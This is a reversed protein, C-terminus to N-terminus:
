RVANSKWLRPLLLLGAVIPHRRQWATLAIKHGSHREIKWSLYDMGGEFTFASKALRAASLLKGAVIRFKWSSRRRPWTSALCCAPDAVDLYFARHAEVLASPRNSREPRLETAYTAALCRELSILADEGPRSLRACEAFTTICAEVLSGLVAERADANAARLIRVPQGFRAWFYPNQSIMRRRFENLTMVAYKCRLQRESEGIAAFHVNPPLIRCALRLLISHSVDDHREVLIYLDILSDATSAGRLCSGYALVALVGTHRRCVADAMREIDQTVPQAAEARLRALLTERDRTM